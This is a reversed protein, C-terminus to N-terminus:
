SSKQKANCREMTNTNQQIADTNQQIVVQGKSTLEVLDQRVFKQLEELAKIVREYDKRFWWFMVVLMGVPLGNETFMKFIQEM